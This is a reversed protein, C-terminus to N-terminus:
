KAQNCPGAKQFEAYAALIGIVRQLTRAQLHWWQSKARQWQLRRQAEKVRLAGQLKGVPRGFESWVDRWAKCTRAWQREALEPTCDARLQGGCFLTTPGWAEVLRQWDRLAASADHRLPTSLRLGRGFSIRTRLYLRPTPLFISSSEAPDGQPGDTPIWRLEALASLVCKSFALSSPSHGGAPLKGSQLESSERRCKKQLALLIRLVQSAEEASNCQASQAYLNHDLHVCLCHRGRSGAAHDEASPSDKRCGRTRPSCSYASTAKCVKAGHCQGRSHSSRKRTRLQARRHLMWRELALRQAQSMQQRILALRQEPHLRQLHHHLRALFQRETRLPRGAFKGPSSVAMVPLGSKTSPPSLLVAPTARQRM